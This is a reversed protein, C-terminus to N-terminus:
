AHNARQLDMSNRIIKKEKAHMSISELLVHETISRPDSILRVVKHNGWDEKKGKEFIPMM